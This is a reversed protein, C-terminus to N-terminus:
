SNNLISLINEKIKGLTSYDPRKTNMARNLLAFDYNNRKMYEVIPDIRNKRNRYLETVLRLELKVVPIQLNNLEIISFHKWPGFGFTEITDLNSDIEVTSFGVVIDDILCTSYYQKTIDIWEPPNFGNNEKFIDAFLDVFIRDKVLIDIDNVPLEVGHLLASATGVLRFELLPEKDLLPKLIKPLIESLKNKTLKM